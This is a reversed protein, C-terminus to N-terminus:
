KSTAAMAAGPSAKTSAAASPSHALLDIHLRVVESRYTIDAV